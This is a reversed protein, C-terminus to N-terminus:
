NASEGRGSRLLRDDMGTIRASFSRELYDVSACRGSKAGIKNEEKEKEISRVCM